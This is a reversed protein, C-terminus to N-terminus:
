LRVGIVCVDDVWSAEILITVKYHLQHTDYNSHIM